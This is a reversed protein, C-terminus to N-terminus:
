EYVLWATAQCDRDATVRVWHAGYGAPFRLVSTVGPQVKQIAYTKWGDQHSYDVEITFSVAETANHSLSIQKQDFHTMLYPDSPVGARIASDKWPGGEGVPKGFKWLDDIAGFWLGPQGEGASFYHGDTKAALDNGSLVLLGRWSCFDHIARNHTAVPRLRRIDLIEKGAGEERPVEYFIGGINALSRESVVERISREPGFADSAQYDRRGKPLRYRKGDHATVIVSAADVAIEAEIKGIKEVEAQHAPDEVRQFVLREDVEYYTASGPTGDAATSQALFQLNRNHKAPRIVGASWPAKSGPKALSAFLVDGAARDNFRQPVYHFYASAKTAAVDTRLRIWEGKADAPFIHQAYDKAPVTVSSLKTWMGRGSEDVEFTFTVPSAGGHALHVMRQPYGAFLFPDSPTEAAVDDSLWVGGAAQPGGFSELEAISGFWLNSQSQGALPNQMISADDAALVLKGNWECLDPIYRLHTARPRIGATNAAAFTKPFDFLTGHMVMLMQDPGVARIRPWETFWGHKPDFCHSAKPLRFTSWVGGDLLKLLVSRRDWGMAWVPDSDNANGEIGGPGTVDTFQRRAVIRWEKGDWEGLVGAEEPSKAKLDATVQSKVLDGLASHEGNNSVVLRGQGSYGGKGHWGPVPKEFLKKVALTEVNAEYIPGEMDVFYVLHEPDTLHRATATLRGVLEKKVDFVRIKGEASIVYPGMILQKSERHILRNAHTGGVSEPHITLAMQPDISYLKDSSGKRAHPPYTLYWLKGAWPVVVGIGCEGNGNYATLHPYIGSVSIPAATPEAAASQAVVFVLVLFAALARVRVVCDVM